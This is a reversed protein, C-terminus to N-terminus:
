RSSFRLWTSSVAMCREWDVRERRSARLAANAADALLLLRPVTARGRVLWLAADERMVPRLM